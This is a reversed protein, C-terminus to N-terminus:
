QQKRCIFKEEEEEEQALIYQWISTHEQNQTM